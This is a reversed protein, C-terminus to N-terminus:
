FTSRLFMIYLSSVIGWETLWVKTSGLITVLLWNYVQTHTRAHTRARALTHTKNEDYYLTRCSAYTVLASLCNSLFCLLLYCYIFFLTTPLSSPAWHSIAYSTTRPGLTPMVM